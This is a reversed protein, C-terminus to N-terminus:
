FAMGGCGFAALGLAFSDFVFVGTAFIVAAVVLAIQAAWGARNFIRMLVATFIGGVVLVAPAYPLKDTLMQASSPGCGPLGLWWTEVVVALVLTGLASLWPLPSRPEAPIKEAGQIERGDWAARAADAAPNFGGGRAALDAAASAAAAAREPERGIHTTVWDYWLDYLAERSSALKAAPESSPLATAEDTM